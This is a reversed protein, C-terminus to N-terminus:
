VRTLGASVPSAPQTLRETVATRALPEARSCRTGCACAARALAAAGCTPEGMVGLHRCQSRTDEFVPRLRLGEGEPGALVQQARRYASVEAHLAGLSDAVVLAARREARATDHQPAPAPPLPAAQMRAEGPERSAPAGPDDSAALGGQWRGLTWAGLAVSLIIGGLMAPGNAFFEVTVEGDL